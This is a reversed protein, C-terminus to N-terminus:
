HLESAAQVSGVGLALFAFVYNAVGSAAQVDKKLVAWCVFFVFSALVLIAYASLTIIGFQWGEVFHIGWGLSSGKQPCVSLREKLKKPIRDFLLGTEDACEPYTCLYLTHNEGVPPIKEAPVPKYRYVEKLDPPPLDDKKQIDVLDSRYM